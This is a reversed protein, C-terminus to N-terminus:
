VGGSLIARFYSDGRAAPNNWASNPSSFPSFIVKAGDRGAAALAGVDMAARMRDCVLTGAFDCDDGCGQKDCNAM